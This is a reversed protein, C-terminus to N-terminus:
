IKNKNDFAKELNRDTFSSDQLITEIFKLSNFLIDDQSKSKEVAIIYNTYKAKINERYKLEEYYREIKRQNEEFEKEIKAKNSIAEEKSVKKNYYDKYLDFLQLYAYKEALNRCKGIEERKYAKESIEEFTM